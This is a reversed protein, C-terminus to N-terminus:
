FLNRSSEVKRLISLDESSISSARSPLMRRSPERRLTRRTTLGSSSMASTSFTRQMASRRDHRNSLMAGDGDVRRSHTRTSSSSPFRKVQRDQEQPELAERREYVVGHTSHALSNYRPVGRSRHSTTRIAAESTTRQLMRRASKEKAYRTRQHTKECATSSHHSSSKGISARRKLKTLTPHLCVREEISNNCSDASSSTDCWRQKGPMRPPAEKHTRSFSSTNPTGRNPVISHMPHCQRQMIKRKVTQAIRAARSQDGVSPSPSVFQSVDIKISNGDSSHVSSYTQITDTSNNRDISKNTTALTIASDHGGIGRRARPEFLDEAFSGAGCSETSISGISPQRTPMKAISDVRPISTAFATNTATAVSPQLVAKNDVEPQLYTPKSQDECRSSQSQSSFVSPQKKEVIHNSRPRSNEMTRTTSKTMDSMVSDSSATTAISLRSPGLPPGSLVLMSPWYRRGASFSRWKLSLNLVISHTLFEIEKNFLVVLVAVVSGFMEDLHNKHRQFM